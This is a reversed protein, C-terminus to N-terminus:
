PKEAIMTKMVEERIGRTAAWRIRVTIEYLASAATTLKNVQISGAPVGAAPPTLGAVAFANMPSTGYNPVADYGAATIEELKMKAALLATNTEWSDRDLATSHGITSLVALCALSFVAMAIIVELLSMGTEDTRDSEWRNGLRM